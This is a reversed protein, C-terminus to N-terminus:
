VRKAWWHRGGRTSGTYGFYVAGTHTPSDLGYSTVVGEKFLNGGRRPNFSDIEIVTGSQKWTCGNLGTCTHDSKLTLATSVVSGGASAYRIYM